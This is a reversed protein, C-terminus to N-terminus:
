DGVVSRLAERYRVLSARPSGFLFATLDAAEDLSVLNYRRVFRLWAGRVLETLVGHFARLCFAVGPRLTITRGAGVNEYLFDDREAGGTSLEWLPVERVVAGVRGARAPWSADDQRLRALSPGLRRQADDLHRLIEAQGPGTNQVLVASGGEGPLPFPSAQRWYLEVIREAIQRTTLTLPAGSDDGVTVALDALAHLLAYKYTSVFGGEDLIRQFRRLFAIQAEPSPPVPEGSTVASVETARVAAAETSRVDCGPGDWLPPRVVGPACLGAVLPLAWQEGPRRTLPVM